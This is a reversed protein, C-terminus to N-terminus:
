KEQGTALRVEQQWGDGPAKYLQVITLPQNQTATALDLEASFVQRYADLVAFYSEIGGKYCINAIRSYDQYSKVLSQLEDEFEKFKIHAILGDGM